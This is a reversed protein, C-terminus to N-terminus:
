EERVGTSKRSGHLSSDAEEHADRQEHGERHTWAPVHVRVAVVRVVREAAQVRVVDIVPGADRPPSVAGIFVRAAETVGKRRGSRVDNVRDGYQRGDDVQRQRGRLVANPRSRARGTM